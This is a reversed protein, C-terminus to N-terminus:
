AKIRSRELFNAAAYFMAEGRKVLESRLFFYWFPFDHNNLEWKKTGPDPDQRFSSYPGKWGTIGTPFLWGASRGSVTGALHQCFSQAKGAAPAARVVRAPDV